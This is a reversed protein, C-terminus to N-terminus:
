SQILLIHSKELFLKYLQGFVHECSMSFCHVEIRFSSQPYFPLQMAVSKTNAWVDGDYRATLEVTAWIFGPENERYFASHGPANKDLRYEILVGDRSTMSLYLDIVDAVKLDRGDAGEENRFETIAFEGAVQLEQEGLFAVRLDAQIKKDIM